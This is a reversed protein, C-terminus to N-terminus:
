VAKSTTRELVRRQSEADDSFLYLALPRPRANVYAIADNLREEQMVAMDDTVDLPVTPPFQRSDRSQRAGLEIVRAGKAKADEVLGSLREFHRDNLTWTFDSNGAVDPYLTDVEQRFAAVFDETKEKPVLSYDPSVCIQGGNACKGFAIRRAATQLSYGRDIIIPSKGGLELTVPDLNESAARM